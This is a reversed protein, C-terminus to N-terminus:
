AGATLEAFRPDDRLPALDDDERADGAFSARERLAHRLHELAATEGLQAEACALNYYLAAADHYRDLADTLIRKAEAHEGRDFL